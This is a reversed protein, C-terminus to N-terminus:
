RRHLLVDIDDALVAVIQHLKQIEREYSRVTTQLGRCHTEAAILRERIDRMEAAEILPFSRVDQEVVIRHYNYDSMRPMMRTDSELTRSLPRGQGGMEVLDTRLLPPISHADGHITRLFTTDNSNSEYSLRSSEGQRRQKPPSSMRDFVSGHHNNRDSSRREVNRHHEDEIHYNQHNRTSRPSRPSRSRNRSRYSHSPSSQRDKSTRSRYSDRSSRTGNSRGENTHYNIPAPPNSHQM